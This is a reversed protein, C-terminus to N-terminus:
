GRCLATLHAVADTIPVDTRDGTKRLSRMM